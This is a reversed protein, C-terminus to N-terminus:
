PTGVTFKDLKVHRITSKPLTNHEAELSSWCFEFAEELFSYYEVFISQKALSEEHKCKVKTANQRKYAM